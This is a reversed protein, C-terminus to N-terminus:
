PDISPNQWMQELHLIFGPTQVLDITGSGSVQYAISVDGSRAYRTQPIAHM